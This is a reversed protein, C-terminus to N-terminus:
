CQHVSHYWPIAVDGGSRVDEDRGKDNPTAEAGCLRRVDPRTPLYGKGQGQQEDVHLKHREAPDYSEHPEYRQCSGQAALATCNHNYRASHISDRLLAAFRTHRAFLAIRLVCVPESLMRIIPASIRGVEVEVKAYDGWLGKRIREEKRKTRWGHVVGRGSGEKVRLGVADQPVVALPVVHKRNANLVGKRM